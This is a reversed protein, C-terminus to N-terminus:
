VAPGFWAISESRATGTGHRRSATGARNWTGVRRHAADHRATGHRATGGAATSSRQSGFARVPGSDFEAGSKTGCRTNIVVNESRFRLAPPCRRPLHRCVGRAAGSSPRATRCRATGTPRRAAGCRGCRATSRGSWSGRENARACRRRFRVRGSHLGRRRLCCMCRLGERGTGEARRGAGLGPPVRAAAARDKEWARCAAYDDRWRGCAPLEGHAYYHHFAHRLGRCHKWEWWYDECPRPPRWSEAGAM